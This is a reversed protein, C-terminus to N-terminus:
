FCVANSVEGKWVSYYKTFLQSRALCCASASGVRMFTQIRDLAVKGNILNM